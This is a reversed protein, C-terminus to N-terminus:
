FVEMFGAEGTILINKPTYKVDSTTLTSDSSMKFPQLSHAPSTIM